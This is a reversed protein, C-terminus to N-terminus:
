QAAKCCYWSYKTTLMSAVNFNVQTTTNHSTDLNFVLLDGTKISEAWIDLGPKLTNNNYAQNLDELFCTLKKQAVCAKSYDQLTDPGSPENDICMLDIAGSEQMGAPCSKFLPKPPASPTVSPEPSPLTSPAPNANDIGPNNVAVNLSPVAAGCASLLLAPILYKM